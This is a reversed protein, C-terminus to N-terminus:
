FIFTWSYHKFVVTLVGSSKQRAVGRSARARIACEEISFAGRAAITIKGTTTINM